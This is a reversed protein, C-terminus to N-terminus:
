HPESATSKLSRLLIERRADESLKKDVVAGAQRARDFARKSRVLDGARVSTSAVKLWLEPSASELAAREYYDTARSWASVRSLQEAAHVCAKACQKSDRCATEVYHAAAGELASGGVQRAVDVTLRLCRHKDAFRDCSKSLVDLAEAPKGEVVALRATLMVADSTHPLGETIVAIHRRLRAKCDGLRSQACREKERAPAMARLLDEADVQRPEPAQPYRAMALDLLELRAREDSSTLTSALHTLVVAGTGEEPALRALEDPDRTIRLAIQSAADLLTPDQTVASRLASIAQTTARLRGLTEGLVLFARGGAHDREIAVTLWRLAPEGSRVAALAGVLYLHPDAPHRLLASRVDAMFQSADSASTGINTRFKEQLAERDERASPAGRLVANAWLAVGTMAIVAPLLRQASVRAWALGGAAVRQSAAPEPEVDRARAARDSRAGGWLTGLLFTLAFGVAPLELALDVANQALLVVIGIFAGAAVPERTAGLRSPRCLWGLAVLAGAGLPIGWEAVWQVVFNEAYQFLVRAGSADYAPFVTEYAGRGIGFIPYDAILPQTWGVVTLKRSGEQFLASWVDTTVGLSFFVVAAALLGGLELTFEFTGSFRHRRRQRLAYLLPAILVLGLLCAAAGGRSGTLLSVAVTVAVALALLWRPGIARHSVLLGVGTFAGLNLYGAMNNPNLLPALAWPPHADVPEYLGYLWTAGAAGHCLTVIAGLAASWFV